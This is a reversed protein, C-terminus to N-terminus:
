QATGRLREPWERFAAVVEKYLARKFPVIMGPLDAFEAWRWDSFEPKAHASLDFDNDEGTFKLAYWKQRQGRFKGSWSVGVLDDPLDYDIWGVTEDLIEVKDAGTEEAVERIVALRPDEGDDIGGQPMQWYDAIDQGPKPLRCGIWVLGRDNFIVAGVGKRYPLSRRLAAVKETDREEDSM